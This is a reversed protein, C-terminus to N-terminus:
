LGKWGDLTNKTKMLTCLLDALAILFPTHAHVGNKSSSLPAYGKAEVFNPFHGKKDEYYGKKDRQQITHGRRDAFLPLSIVSRERTTTAHRFYSM